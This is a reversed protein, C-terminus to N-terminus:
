KNYVYLAFINIKLCFSSEFSYVYKWYFIFICTNVNSPLLLDSVVFTRPRALVVNGPDSSARNAQSNHDTEPQRQTFTAVLACLM